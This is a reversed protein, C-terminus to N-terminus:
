SRASQDTQVDHGEWGTLKRIARVMVEGGFPKRLFDVAGASFVTNQGYDFASMCIVPTEAMHPMGHFRSLAEIGDIGPLRIDTLIVDPRRQQIILFGDEATAAQDVDFGNYYLLSSYVERQDANDEIVLVRALYSVECCSPTCDNKWSSGSGDDALM